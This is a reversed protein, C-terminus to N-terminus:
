GDAVTRCAVVANDFVALPGYLEDIIRDAEVGKIGNGWLQWRKAYPTLENRKLGPANPSGIRQAQVADVVITQVEAM